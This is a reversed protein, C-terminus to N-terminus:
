YESNYAQKHFNRRMENVQTPEQKFMATTLTQNLWDVGDEEEETKECAANKELDDNTVDAKVM